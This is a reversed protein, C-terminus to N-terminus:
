EREEPVIVILVNVASLCGIGFGTSTAERSWGFAGTMPTVLNESQIKGIRRSTSVFLVRLKYNYIKKSTKKNGFAPAQSGEDAATPRNPSMWGSGALQPL